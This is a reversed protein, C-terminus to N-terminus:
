MGTPADRGGVAQNIQQWESFQGILKLSLKHRLDRLHLILSAIEAGFGKLEPYDQDVRM